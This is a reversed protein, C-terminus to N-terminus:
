YTRSSAFGSCFSTADQKNLIYELFVMSFNNKGVSEYGFAIIECTSSKACGEVLSLMPLCNVVGYNQALRDITASSDAAKSV